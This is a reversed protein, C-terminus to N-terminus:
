LADTIAFRCDDFSRDFDVSRAQSTPEGPTIKDTPLVANPLPLTHRACTRQRIGKFWCTDKRPWADARRHPQREAISIPMALLLIAREKSRLAPDDAIKRGDTRVWAMEPLTSTTVCGSLLIL